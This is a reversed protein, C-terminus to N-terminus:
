LLEVSPLRQDRTAGCADLVPVGADVLRELDVGPQPTLIIGLDPDGLLADELRVTRQEEGAVEVTGVLPDVVDVTAGAGTLREIVAVAPSERVDSVGAKYAAGVVCVRSGRLATSARDNLVEAARAVVYAPMRNNVARAHAIFGVGFGAQQECRWSLYTPDVAICHGGVGPGPWFPLYGFPKTAAADLSEWIDVGLAPALTALENVLGINVQRFTNEILKAMEAERPSSTVHVSPVFAGYFAAALESDAPTIGGVVKPTTSVAWSSGPDVREPSFALAFDEGARLGGAELLPRVVEETTGPYTTSELIVLRGPRLSRAVTEVADRVPGLHPVGDVLPTPVAVVIVDASGLVAEDQEWRVTAAGIATDSLDDVYSRRRRLADIRGQDVDVGITPFGAADITLALPLGVYGLGVVAVTAARQELRRRLDALPAPEPGHALEPDSRVRLYLDIV